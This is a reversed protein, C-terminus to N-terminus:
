KVSKIYNNGFLHKRDVVSVPNGFQDVVCNPENKLDQPLFGVFNWPAKKVKTKVEIEDIGLRAALWRYYRVVLKENYDDLWQKRQKELTLRQASPNEIFAYVDIPLDPYDMAITESQYMVSRWSKSGVILGLGPVRKSNSDGDYPLGLERAKQKASVANFPCMYTGYPSVKTRLIKVISEIRKKNTVGSEELFKIVDEDDTADVEGMEYAKEISYVLDKDTNDSFPSRNTNKKNSFTRARRPTVFEVVDVLITEYGLQKHAVTRNAGDRCIFEKGSKPDPHKEVVIVPESYDYGKNTLSDVIDAVNSPVILQERVQTEPSVDVNDISTVIRKIQLIGEEYIPPFAALSKKIEYNIKAM